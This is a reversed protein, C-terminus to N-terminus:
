HQHDLHKSFFADIRDWADRAAVPNPGAGTLKALPRVLLPANPMDSLFSHGAHPYERVDHPVGFETLAGELRAASGQLVLDRGGYSGVIPCAGRLVELDAPVRGYNVSVADFGRDALALAFAGGMCFGIVGVRGSSGIHGQLWRHAAAVDAFPRGERKAIAAFVQRVGRLGGGDSYLDPALVLYGRSALHEAQRRLVDDLGWAEHLAVVGPWPGPTSPTAVYGHLGRSTGQSGPGSLDVWSM